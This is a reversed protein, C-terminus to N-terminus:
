AARKTESRGYTKRLFKVLNCSLSLRVLRKDCQQEKIFPRVLNPFAASPTIPYIQLEYSGAPCKKFKFNM